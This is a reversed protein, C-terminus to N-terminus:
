KVEIQKTERILDIIKALTQDVDLKSNDVFIADDPITLPAIEREKDRKDRDDIINKADDESYVNGKQAQEKRWREARVKLSASLFIKVDAEPFVVSGTDRGDAVINFKQAAVRQIELLAERVLGNTSVISAGKDIFSTKLLPTINQGEFMIQEKYDKDFDYVLKEPDIYGKLDLPDPDRLQNEKYSCKNILLYAIARYLLGTNIYYFGLKKALKRAATSKGSAAPGDITIIM